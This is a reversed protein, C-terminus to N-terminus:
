IRELDKSPLWGVNGDAIRIEVWGSSLESKVVVKTGEHLVFIETGSSDPASKVTTSPVMVIAEARADLRNRLSIAYSMAVLTFILSFLATFFATKRLWRYKGFVYILTTALFLVFLAISIWAWTNSAFLRAIANAWTKLFFPEIADIKDVIQRNVFRLNFAADKYNPRLQLAREYNLIAKGLQGAKYHANALNYYLEPSVAGESVIKAYLEASENWNQNAYLEAARQLDPTQASLITTSFFLTLLFCIRNM